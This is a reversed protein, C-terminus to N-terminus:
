CRKAGFKLMWVWDSCHHSKKVEKNEDSKFCDGKDTGYNIDAKSAGQYFHFCNSCRPKM